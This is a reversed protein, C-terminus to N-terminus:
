VRSTASAEAGRLGPVPAPEELDRRLQGLARHLAVAATNTRLGLLEAVQRTTLDAGYRLAILERARGDLKDLARALELRDLADAAVDDAAAIEPVSSFSSRYRVSLQDDVVRRAIGILWALPEGKRRDFSERYRLAREFTESTADEADPGDGLRYAAYAYALGIGLVIGLVGALIANRVPRPQVQAAGSARDILVAPKSALAIMTDVTNGKEVLAEYSASGRTLAELRANVDRKAELLAATDLNARYGIYARGYANALRAAIAPNRDTVSFQLLDANQKAAVSSHSLLDQTSRGRLGAADLAQQAVDPSRALDAQTQAKRDPQQYITPDTIGNLQTGLNQQVLLVDASARYLKQQQLSFAVAALPVLVVAQLIIWKRRRVVRLYDRLTTRQDRQGAEVV